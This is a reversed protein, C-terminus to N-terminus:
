KRPSGILDQLKKQEAPTREDSVVAAVQEVDLLTFPIPDVPADFHFRSRKQNIERTRSERQNSDSQPRDGPPERNWRYCFYGPLRLEPGASSSQPVAVTAAKFTTVSISLNIM